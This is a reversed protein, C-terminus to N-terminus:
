TRSRRSSITPVASLAAGVIGADAGLAAVRVEIGRSADAFVLPRMAAVWRRRYGDHLGLGGGVVIAEPDLANVLRAVESGLAAAAREV